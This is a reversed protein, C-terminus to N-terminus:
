DDLGVILKAFGLIRCGSRTEPLVKGHLVGFCAMEPSVFPVTPGQYRYSIRDREDTTQHSCRRQCSITLVMSPHNAVCANFLARETDFEFRLADCM